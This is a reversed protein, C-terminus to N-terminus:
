DTGYEHLRSNEWCAPLDFSSNGGWRSAQSYQTRQLKCPSAVLWLKSTKVGANVHAAAGSATRHPVGPRVECAGTRVRRRTQFTKNRAIPLWFPSNAAVWLKRPHLCSNLICVEMVYRVCVAHMLYAKRRVPFHISFCSVLMLVMTTTKNGM